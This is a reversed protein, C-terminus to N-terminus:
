ELLVGYGTGLVTGYAVFALLVYADLNPLPMLFPTSANVVLPIALMGVGVALAIGYGLGVLMGTTTRPTDDLAGGLLRNLDADQEAVSRIRREYEDFRSGIAFRFAVAFLAALVLWVAWSGIVSGGQGALSGVYRLHVLGALHQLVLGGVSAGFLAGFVTARRRLARTSLDAELTETETPLASRYTAGLAGGFALYGLLVAPDTHPLPLAAATTENVFFPVVVLGVLGALGAGYAVGRRVADGFPTSAEIGKGLTLAFGLAFLLGFAVWVATGRAFSANGAIDGFYRLYVPWGAYFAFTSVVAAGAAGYVTARARQAGLLPTERRRVVGYTLGFAMGFVGWGLVVRPNGLPVQLTFATSSNVYAPLVVLGFLVGLVSVVSGIRLGSRQATRDAFLAVGVAALFAFLYVTLFGRELTGSQTLTGVFRLHIPSILYLLVSGVTGAVLTSATVAGVRDVLTDPLVSAGEVGRAYGYGGLLGYAAWGVLVSRDGLPSALTFQTEANVVAPVAFLSLGVGALAGFCLGAFATRRAYGPGRGGLKAATLAFLVTTVFAAVFFVLLGRGVSGSGVVAGVYRLHLPALTALLGGGIVGGLLTGYVVGRGRDGGLGFTPLSGDLTTGYGAGIVTGTLVYGLAIASDVIPVSPRYGTAVNVAGPVGVFGVVVAAVAGFLMGIGAATTGLMSRRVAPMLLRRLTASRSTLAMVVNTYRNLSHSVVYAFGLGLVLCLGFWTALSQVFAADGSLAGVLRLHGPALRELAFAGVVGGLLAGVVAARFEPGGLRSASTNSHNRIERTTM